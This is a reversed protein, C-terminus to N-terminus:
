RTGTSKCPAYFMVLTSPNSQLFEDFNESSLHHVDNEMDSWAVEKEPAKPASPSFSSIKVM